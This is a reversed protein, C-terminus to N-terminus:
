RYLNSRPASAVAPQDLHIRMRVEENALLLWHGDVQLNEVEARVSYYRSSNKELAVFVIHGTFEVQQEHALTATVTVVRGQIEHPNYLSAELLGQVYLRDMRAVRMVNDGANVWEGAQKYLELVNGHIPSQIRHRQISDSAAHVNLEEIQVDKLTAEQDRQAQELQLEAQKAQLASRDYEQKPLSGKSYLGYNTRRERDAIELANQAARIDIDSNAKQRAAELKTRATELRLQGLSDDIRALEEASEISQGERVLLSVLPGSEQAPVDIDAILLTFCPEIDVYGDGSLSVPNMSPAPALGRSVAAGQLGAAVEGWALLCGILGPIFAMKLRNM